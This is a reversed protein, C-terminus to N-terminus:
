HFRNHTKHKEDNEMDRLVLAANMSFLTSCAVNQMVYSCSKLCNKEGVSLNTGKLSQVCKDLCQPTTYGRLHRIFYGKDEHLFTEIKEKFRDAPMKDNAIEDM